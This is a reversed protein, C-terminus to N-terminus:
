DEDSKNSEESQESQNDFKSGKIEFEAYYPYHDSIYQQKARNITSGPKDVVSHSFKYSIDSEKHYPKWFLYDWHRDADGTFDHFTNEIPVLIFGNSKIKDIVPDDEECYFCGGFFVAQTEPFKSLVENMQELAVEICPIHADFTVHDLHINFFAFDLGELQKLSCWTCIRPFFNHFDNSGPISPTSSLWFQGWDNLTYKFKNYSISCKESRDTSDRYMGVFDYVSGLNDDIFEFQIKTIEQFYLVDPGSNLIVQVLQDKRLDWINQEDVTNLYRINLDFISIVNNRLNQLLTFFQKHAIFTDPATLWEIQGNKNFFYRYRFPFKDDKVPVYKSYFKQGNREEEDMKVAKKINDNGLQPINGVVYMPWNGYEQKQRHIFHYLCTNADISGRFHHSPRTRLKPRKPNPKNMPEMPGTGIGTDLKKRKRHDKPDVYPVLFYDRGSDVESLSEPMDHNKNEPIKHLIEETIEIEVEESEYKYHEIESELPSKIIENEKESENEDKPILMERRNKPKDNRDDPRRNRDKSERKKDRSRSLEDEQKKKEKSKSGRKSKKGRPNDEDGSLSGKKKQIKKKVLKKKPKSRNDKYSEDIDFNSETKNGDKNTNDENNLEETTFSSRSRRKSKRKNMRSEKETGEDNPQDIDYSNNIRKLLKDKSKISRKKRPRDPEENDEGDKSLRDKSKIRKSGSPRKKDRRKKDKPENEKEEPKESYKDNADSIEDEEEREKSKRSSKGSSSRRKNKKNGSKRRPLRRKSGDKLNKYDDNGSSKKEDENNSNIQSDEDDKFKKGKPRLKAAKLPLGDDSEREKKPERIKKDASKGKKNDSKRSSDLPTEYENEDNQEFPIKGKQFIREKDDPKKSRKEFENEDENDDNRIQNNEEEDKKPSYKGIAKQPKKNKELGPINEEEDPNENNQNEIEDLDDNKGKKFPKNERKKNGKGLEPVGESENGDLNTDDNNQLVKGKKDNKNETKEIGDKNDTEDLNENNDMKNLDEEENDLNNAIIKKTIREKLKEYSLKYNNLQKPEESPKKNDENEELDNLKEEELATNETRKSINNGEKDNKNNSNVFSDELNGEKGKNKGKVLSNIDDNNEENSKENDFKNPKEKFINREKEQIIKNNLDEEEGNDNGNENDRINNPKNNDKKQELDQPGKNNIEDENDNERPTDNSKDRNERGDGFPINNEEDDNDFINGKGKVGKPLTKNENAKIEDEEDSFQNPKNKDKGKEKPLSNNSFEIERDGLNNNKYGIENENEPPIYNDEEDNLDKDGSESNKEENSDKPIIKNNIDDFNNEIGFLNQKIKNDNKGENLLPNDSLREENLNEEGISNKHLSNKVKSVGRPLNDSLVKEYEDIDENTANSSRNKDDKNKKEKILDKNFGHENENLNNIENAIDEKGKGKSLSDSNENNNLFKDSKIKNANEGTIKPLNNKNDIESDKSYDGFVNGVKSKGNGRQKSSNDNENKNLNDEDFIDPKEKSRSSNNYDKDNEKFDDGFIDRKEIPLNNNYNLEKENNFNNSSRRNENQGSGRPFDNDNDNDKNNYIENEFKYPSRKNQNIGTGTPINNDYNGEKSNKDRNATDYLNPREKIDGFERPLNNNYNVENDKLYNRGSKNDYKEQQKEGFKKQNRNYNPEYLNNPKEINQRVPFSGQKNMGDRFSNKDFQNRKAPYYDDRYNNEDENFIQGYLNNSNGINKGFNSPINKNFNNQEENRSKISGISLNNNYVELNQNEFQIPIGKNINRGVETPINNFDGEREDLDYRYPNQRDKSRESGERRPYNKRYYEDEYNRNDNSRGRNGDKGRGIPINNNFDGEYDDFNDGYNNGRKEREEGKSSNFYNNNKNDDFNNPRDRYLNQGRERPYNNNNNFDYYNNGKDRFQDSKRKNKNIEAKRSIENNYDQRNQNYDYDYNKTEDRGKGRKRGGQYDTKNNDEDDSFSSREDRDKGRDGNKSRGRSKNKNFEEESDHDYSNRSYNDNSRRRKPDNNQSDNNDDYEFNNGKGVRKYKGKGRPTRNNFDDNDNDDYDNERYGKDKSINRKSERKGQNSLDDENEEDYKDMKYKGEGKGGQNNNEDENSGEDEYNNRRDKGKNKKSYDPNENPYSDNLDKRKGYKDGSKKRAGKLNVEDDFDYDENNIKGKYGKKGRLINEKQENENEEDNDYKNQGKRIEKNGKGKSLNDHFDDKDENNVDKSARKKNKNRKNYLDDEDEYQNGKNNWNDKKKDTIRNPKNGKNLPSNRKPKNINKGLKGYPYNNKLNDNKLEEVGEEYVENRNEVKRRRNFQKPGKRIIGENRKIEDMNTEIYNEVVDENNDEGIFDNKGPKNRKDRTRGEKINFNQYKGIGKGKIPNKSRVRLNENNAEGDKNNDVEKKINNFYINDKKNGKHSLGKKPLSDVSSMYQEREISERSINIIQNLKGTPKSPKNVKNPPLKPKNNEKSKTSPKQKSNNPSKPRERPNENSIEETEVEYFEMLKLRDKISLRLLNFIKLLSDRSIKIGDDDEEDENFIIYFHKILKTMMKYDIKYEKNPNNQIYETEVLTLLYLIYTSHKRIPIGAMKLIKQIDTRRVKIKNSEENEELDEVREDFVDTDQFSIFFFKSKPHFVEPTRITALDEKREFIIVEDANMSKHSNWKSM